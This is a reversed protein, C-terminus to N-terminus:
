KPEKLGYREFYEPALMRCIVADIDPGFADELRAEPKFGIGENWRITRENMHPTATWLRHVKMQMFPYALVAAINAKTGAWRPTTAAASLQMSRVDPQWDSFVVGGAIDGDRIIGIAACPGFPRGNRFPIHRVVWDAVAADQGFLLM